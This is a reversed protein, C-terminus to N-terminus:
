QDDQFDPAEEDEPLEEKPEGDGGDKPEEKRPVQISVEVRRNKARNEATDNDAVPRSDGYGQVTIRGAKVGGYDILRHVVSAARAASLDWNSRYRPGSIPVNDTHGSIKVQGSTQKIIPTLGDIIAAFAQNIEGSGAPFAISSPFRMVVSGGSREVKVGLGDAQKKVVEKVAEALQEAQIDREARADIKFDQPEAAPLEVSVTPIKSRSPDTVAAHKRKIAGEIEIVGALKDKKAIGFADKLSGAIAKYKLVDMESFTLLLVFLTLLLSMLDAFTAMWLPAGAPAKKGM